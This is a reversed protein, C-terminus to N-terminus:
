RGSSNPWLRSCRCCCEGWRAAPRLRETASRITVGAREFEMVLGLTDAVSRSFRDLRYFVLVDFRRERADSLARMLGPRDTSGGSAEDQYVAVVPLDNAKCFAELREKQAGLSWPQRSEDTSIRVYIAARMHTM